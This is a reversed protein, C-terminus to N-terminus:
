LFYISFAISIGPFIPFVLEAWPLGNPRARAHEGARGQAQCAAGAQRRLGSRGRERARERNWPGVRDAGNSKRAGV